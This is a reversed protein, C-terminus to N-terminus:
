GRLNTANISYSTLRDRKGRFLSMHFWVDCYSRGHKMSVRAPSALSGARIPMLASTKLMIGFLMRLPRQISVWHILYILLDFQAYLDKSKCFLHNGEQGLPSFATNRYGLLLVLNLAFLLLHLAYAISCEGFLGSFRTLKSGFKPVGDDEALPLFPRTEHDRSSHM